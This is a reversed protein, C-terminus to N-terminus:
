DTSRKRCRKGSELTVLARTVADEGLETVCKEVLKRLRARM